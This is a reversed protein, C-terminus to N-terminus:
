AACDSQCKSRGSRDAVQEESVGISLTCGLATEHDPDNCRVPAEDAQLYNEDNWTTAVPGPLQVQAFAIPKRAPVPAREVKSMWGALTAYNISDRRAFAAMTLGSAQYAAIL